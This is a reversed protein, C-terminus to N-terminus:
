EKIISHIPSFLEDTTQCGKRMMSRMEDMERVLHRPWGIRRGINNFDNETTGFAVLHGDNMLIVIKVVIAFVLYHCIRRRIKYQIVNRVTENRKYLLATIIPTTSLTSAFNTEDAATDIVIGAPHLKRTAVPGDFM